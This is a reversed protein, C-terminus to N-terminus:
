GVKVWQHTDYGARMGGKAAVPIGMSHTTGAAVHPGAKVEGALAVDM